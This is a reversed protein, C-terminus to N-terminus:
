AIDGFQPKMGLSIATEAEGLSPSNVPWDPVKQDAGAFYNTALTREM